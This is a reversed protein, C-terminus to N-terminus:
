LQTVVRSLSHPSSHPRSSHPYLEKYLDAERGDRQHNALLRLHNKLIGNVSITGCVVLYCSGQDRKKKNSYLWFTLWKNHFGPSYFMATISYEVIVSSYCDVSSSWILLTLQCERIVLLSSNVETFPCIDAVTQTIQAPYASPGRQNNGAGAVQDLLRTKQKGCM